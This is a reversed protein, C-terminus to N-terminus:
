IWFTENVTGGLQAVDDAGHQDNSGRWRVRALHCFILDLREAAFRRGQGPRLAAESGGQGMVMLSMARHCQEGAAM